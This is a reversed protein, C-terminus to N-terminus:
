FALNARQQVRLLPEGTRIFLLPALAILLARKRQGRVSQHAIQVLGPQLRDELIVRIGRRPNM